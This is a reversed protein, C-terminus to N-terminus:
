FTAQAAYMDQREGCVIGECAVCVHNTEDLMAIASYPWSLTNIGRKMMDLCIFGDFLEFSRCITATM